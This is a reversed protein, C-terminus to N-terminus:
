PTTDGTILGPVTIPELVGLGTFQTGKLRDKISMEARACM